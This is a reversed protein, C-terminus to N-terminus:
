RRGVTKDKASLWRKCEKKTKAHYRDIMYNPHVEWVIWCNIYKDKEIKISEM